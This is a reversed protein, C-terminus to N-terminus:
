LACIIKTQSPVTHFGVTNTSNHKTPVGLNIVGKKQFKVKGSHKSFEAKKTNQKCILGKKLPPFSSCGPEDGKTSPVSSGETLCEKNEALVKKTTKKAGNQSGVDVFPTPIGGPGAPPTPAPICCVDPPASMAQGGKKTALPTMTGEEEEGGARM